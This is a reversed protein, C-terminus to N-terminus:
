ANHLGPRLPPFATPNSIAASRPDRPIRRSKDDISLYLDSSLLLASDRRLQSNCSAESIETRSSSAKQCRHYHLLLPWAACWRFKGWFVPAATRLFVAVQQCDGFFNSHLTETDISPSPLCCCHALLSWSAANPPPNSCYSRRLASMRSFFNKANRLSRRCGHALRSNVAALLRTGPQGLRVCTMVECGIRTSELEACTNRWVLRFCRSRYNEAVNHADRSM